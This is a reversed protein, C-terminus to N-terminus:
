VKMKYEQLHLTLIETIDEKVFPISVKPNIAFPCIVRTYM